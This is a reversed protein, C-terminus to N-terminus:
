SSYVNGDYIRTGTIRANYFSGGYQPRGGAGIQLGKLDNPMVFNTTNKYVGDVYLKVTGNTNIYIGITHGNIANMGTLLAVNDYLTNSRGPERNTWLFRWGYSTYTSNKVMALGLAYVMSGNNGVPDGFMIFRSQATSSSTDYAYSYEAVDVQITKGFVLASSDINSDLLRLVQQQKDFVVGTNGRVPPTTGASKGPVEDAEGTKLIATYNQREDTLSKTFDWEYLIGSPNAVVPVQITAIGPQCDILIQHNGVTGINGRLTYDTVATGSGRSVVTLYKRLSEISDTPYVQHTGLNLTVDVTKGYAQAAIINRRLEMLSANSVTVSGM